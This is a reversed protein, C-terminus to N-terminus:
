NEKIFTALNTIIPISYIGAQTRKNSGVDGEDVLYNTNRTVSGKVTYGLLELAEKAAAKTKYSQLKGTICVVLGNNATKPKKAKTSHIRFTFPLLSRIEQLDTQLFNILNDAAKEGIGAAKCIEYTIDNVTDIHGVLRGAITKGVLPIGFSALVKELSASKSQEIQDFIKEAVKESGILDVLDELSLSYLEPITEIMLKDLTKAGLGKIEMSSIFHQLQKSMKASCQTNVCFLQTNQMVLESSCTPCETPIQIKEIM